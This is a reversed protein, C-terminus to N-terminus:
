DSLLDALRGGDFARGFSWMVTAAYLLPMVVLSMSDLNQSAWRSFRDLPEDSAARMRM